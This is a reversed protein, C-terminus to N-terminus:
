ELVVGLGECKQCRNVALGLAPDYSVLHGRRGPLWAVVRPAPDYPVLAGTEWAANSCLEWDKVSRVCRFGFM